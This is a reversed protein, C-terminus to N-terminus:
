TYALHDSIHSGDCGRGYKDHRGLTDSLHFLIRNQLAARSRVPRLGGCIRCIDRGAMPVIPLSQKEVQVAM